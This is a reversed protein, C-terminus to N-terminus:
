RSRRRLDSADVNIGALLEAVRDIDEAPFAYRAPEDSDPEAIEIVARGEVPSPSVLRINSRQAHARRLLTELRSFGVKVPEPPQTGSPM